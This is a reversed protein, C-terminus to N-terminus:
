EHSLYISKLTKLVSEYNYHTAVFTSGLASLREWDDYCTLMTKLTETFLKAACVEGGKVIDRVSGVDTAVIVLGAAQAELLVTPLAEVKSSLLFVHHTKMAEQVVISSQSGLFRVQSSIGLRVVLDELAKREPGEGIITYELIYDPLQAQVLAVAELAIQLAKEPVLRAVSLLRITAGELVNPRPRKFAETDVGNPLDIVKSAALGFDLLHQKNYNSISVIGDAVAFLRKYIGGGKAIGLRIDYGHFTTYLRIDLGTAKISSAMVGNDGFHAHIISVKKRVIFHVRFLLRLSWAEAKFKFVNLANFYAKRQPSLLGNFFVGVGKVYRKFRQPEYYADVDVLYTELHYTELGELAKFADENFQGGKTHILVDFGSDILGVVHDRVFTESIAPFTKVWVLVTM